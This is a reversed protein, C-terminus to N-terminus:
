CYIVKQSAEVGLIFQLTHILENSSITNML